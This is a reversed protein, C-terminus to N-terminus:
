TIETLGGYNLLPVRIRDYAYCLSPRFRTGRLTMLVTAGLNVSPSACSRVPLGPRIMNIVKLPPRM